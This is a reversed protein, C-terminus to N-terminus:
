EGDISGLLWEKLEKAVFEDEAIDIARASRFMRHGCPVFSREQGITIKGWTLDPRWHNTATPREASLM